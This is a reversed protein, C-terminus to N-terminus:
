LRQGGYNLFVSEEEGFERWDDEDIGASDCYAEMSDRIHELVEYPMGSRKDLMDLAQQVEWDKLQDNAYKCAENFQEITM